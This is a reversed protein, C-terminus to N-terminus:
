TALELKKLYRTLVRVDVKLHKSMGVYGYKPHYPIYNDVV